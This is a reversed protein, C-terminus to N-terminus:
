PAYRALSGEGRCLPCFSALRGEWPREGGGGEGAAVSSILVEVRFPLVALCTGSGHEGGLYVVMKGAGEGKDLAGQIERTRHNPFQQRFSCLATICASTCEVYSYDVIIDGFTESPNLIQM